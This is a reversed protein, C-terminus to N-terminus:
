SLKQFFSGAKLGNPLPLKGAQCHPHKQKAQKNIKVGCYCVRKEGSRKSGPSSRDASQRGAQRGGGERARVVQPAQTRTQFGQIAGTTFRSLNPASACKVSLCHKAKKKHQKGKRKEWISIYVRTNEQKLNLSNTRQRHRSKAVPSLRAAGKGARIPAM